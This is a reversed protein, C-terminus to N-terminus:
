NAPKIVKLWNNLIELGYETLAAEPHFQLGWIPLKSHKFAMPENEETYALMKLEEPLPNCILSHYRVVNFYEPIQNFLNDDLCHIKSIKGHMPKIAHKIKGGFHLCIAQHGLCIGLVPIQTEFEKLWHMLKGAQDPTGPGPSLVVATFDKIQVEELSGDNQIIQCSEGLQHFYDVLNHTFSDYNDILLIL